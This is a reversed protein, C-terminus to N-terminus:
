SFKLFIQKLKKLGWGTTDILLSDGDIGRATNEHNIFYYVNDYSAAISKLKENYTKRTADIKWQIAKRIAPEAGMLIVPIDLTDLEELVPKLSKMQVEVDFKEQKEAKLIWQEGIIVFKSSKLKAIQNKNIDCFQTSWLVQLNQVGRTSLVTGLIKARSDGIFFYM